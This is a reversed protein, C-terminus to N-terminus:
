NKQYQGIFFAGNSIAYDIGNIARDQTALGCYDGIKVPMIKVNWCVGSIGKTNNGIAGIIGSVHTGHYSNSPRCGEFPVEHHTQDDEIENNDSVFNWGNIDNLFGNSDNDEEDEPDENPNTWLADELDEYDTDIGTDLVAVVIESNGTSIDWAYPAWIKDLGWQNEYEEDNPETSNLYAIANKEAYEVYPNSQLYLIADDLDIVDPIKIHFLYPDGIFSRHAFISPEWNFAYIEENLYTKIKGQVSNIVNQILWRSQIIDGLPYEKFRVLIENPVYRQIDSEAQPTETAKSDPGNFLFLCSIFFCGAIAMLLKKM